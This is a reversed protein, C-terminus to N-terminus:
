VMTPLLCSKGGELGVLTLWENFHSHLSEFTQWGQRDFSQLFFQKVLMFFWETTYISVGNLSEKIPIGLENARNIIRPTDYIIGSDCYLFHPTDFFDIAREFITTLRKPMQRLYCWRFELLQQGPYTMIVVLFLRRKVDFVRMSPSTMFDIIWGNM